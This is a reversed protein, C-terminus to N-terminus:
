TVDEYRWSGKRTGDSRIWIGDGDAHPPFEQYAILRLKARM